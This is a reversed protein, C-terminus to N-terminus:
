FYLKRYNSLTEKATLFSAFESDNKYSINYEGIRESAVMTGLGRSASYAMGALVTAVFSIDSPVAVSYGWKATIRANQMGLTWVRSRLWLKRIPVGLAMNNNPLTFYKNVGTSAVEVFSDGYEDSGVEVKTIAVCDDILLDQSGGGDFLRASAVTDAVFNRSTFMDIFAESALIFDDVSGTITVGLFNEIKAKTTYNKM